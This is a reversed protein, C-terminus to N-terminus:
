DEEDDEEDEVRASSVMSILNNTEDSYQINGYNPTRKRIIMEPNDMIECLLAQHDDELPAISIDRTARFEGCNNLHENELRFFNWIFRRFVECVQQISTILEPPIPTVKKLVLGLVWLLRLIIDEAMALYYYTTSPYVTEERLLRNEGPNAAFFGWDM